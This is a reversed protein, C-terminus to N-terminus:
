GYSFHCENKNYKWCTEPHAHVQYTKVLEFLEPDNLHNPLQANVRKEIFEKYAAENETNPANFIWIFSHVHPSSKDQFEFHIAYKTKGFPGDLIIDKFFVGVKDQFHRAVPVPNNNLLNCQEQYSLDACSFTLFYTSM